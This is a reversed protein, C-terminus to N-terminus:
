IEEYKGIRMVKEDGTEGDYFVIKAMRIHFKFCLFKNGRHFVKRCTAYFTNKRTNPPATAKRFTSDAYQGDNSCPNFDSKM